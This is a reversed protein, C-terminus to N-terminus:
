PYSQAIEQLLQLTEAAEQENIRNMAFGVHVLVWDGICTEPPHQEDVICAINIQRKVGGINVIALKHEPNTIETIQGPIGLCM